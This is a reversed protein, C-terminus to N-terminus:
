DHDKEVREIITFVAVRQDDSASWPPSVPPKLARCAHMVAVKQRASLQEIREYVDPQAMEGPPQSRTPEPPEDAPPAPAPPEEPRVQPRSSGGIVDLHALVRTKRKGGPESWIHKYVVCQAGPELERVKRQMLYGAPTYSPETRLSETGDSETEKSDSTESRFFVYLRKDRENFEHRVFEARFRTAGLVWDAVDLADSSLLAACAPVAAHVRMAWARENGGIPGAAMVALRVAEGARPDLDSM